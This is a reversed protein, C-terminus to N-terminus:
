LGSGPFVCKLQGGRVCRWMQADISLYVGVDSDQISTQTPVHMWGGPIRIMEGPKIVACDSPGCCHAGWRDVYQGNMIWEASGHARATCTGLAVGCLALAAYALGRLGPHGAM